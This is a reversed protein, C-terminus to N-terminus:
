SIGAYQWYFEKHSKRNGKCCECVCSPEFGFKRTENVGSFEFILGNIINIAIVPRKTKEQYNHLRDLWQKTRKNRGQKMMWETNEKKTCWELNDVSNNSPNNDIHNICPKNETNPIFATAVLRHIYFYKETPYKLCVRRYGKGNDAGKLIRNTNRNRILGFNSVEYHNEYGEIPKWLEKSTEM